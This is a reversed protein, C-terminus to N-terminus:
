RFRDRTNLLSMEFNLLSRISYRTPLYLLPIPRLSAWITSVIIYMNRTYCLGSCRGGSLLFSASIGAPAERCYVRGRQELGVGRGWWTTLLVCFIFANQKLDEKVNRGVIKNLILSSAGSGLRSPRWDAVQSLNVQRYGHKEHRDVDGHQKRCGHQM